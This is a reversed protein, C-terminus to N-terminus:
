AIVACRAGLFLDASVCDSFQIWQEASNWNHVVIRVPLSINLRSASLIRDTSPLWASRISCTPEIDTGPSGRFRDDVQQEHDRVRRRFIRVGRRHARSAIHEPNSLRVPVLVPHELPRVRVDVQVHKRGATRFDLVHHHEPIPQALFAASRSRDARM